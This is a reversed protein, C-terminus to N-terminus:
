GRPTELSVTLNIKTAILHEQTVALAHEKLINAHARLGKALTADNLLRNLQAHQVAFACEKSLKTLALIDQHFAHASQHLTEQHSVLKQQYFATLDPTVLYGNTKPMFQHAMDLGAADYDFFLAM